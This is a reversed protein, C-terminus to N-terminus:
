SAKRTRALARKVTSHALEFVKAIRKEVRVSATKDGSMLKYLYPRALHLRRAAASYTLPRKGKSAAKRFVDVLRLFPTPARRRAARQARTAM